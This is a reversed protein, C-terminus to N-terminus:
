MKTQRRAQVVHVSITSGAPITVNQKSNKAYLAGGAAGIIAGVGHGLLGGVLAGGAAAGLEKGANSKTNVQVNSVYGQLQYINGSQTNIKDVALEIKANTGQGARTVSAVHGYVKANNVDYNTTHVNSMTFTEGVQADKSNLSQDMTGVLTTGAAIGASAALPALTLVAIAAVALTRIM